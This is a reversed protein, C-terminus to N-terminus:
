CIRPSVPDSDPWLGPGAVLAVAVLHYDSVELYVGNEAALRAEGFQILGPHALIDAHPSRVAAGNTGSNGPEM